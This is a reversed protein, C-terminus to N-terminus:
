QWFNAYYNAIHKDKSCLRISLLSHRRNKTMKQCLSFFCVFGQIVRKVFVIFLISQYCYDQMTIWYLLLYKPFTTLRNCGNIYWSIYIKMYWWYWCIEDIETVTPQILSQELLALAGRNEIVIYRLRLHKLAHSLCLINFWM